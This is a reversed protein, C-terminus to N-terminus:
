STEKNNQWRMQIKEARDCGFCSSKQQEKHKRNCPNQSWNIEKVWNILCGSLVRDTVRIKTSDVAIIIYDDDDYISSQHSGNL